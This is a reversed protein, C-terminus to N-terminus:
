ECVQKPRIAKLFWGLSNTETKVAWGDKRMMRAFENRNRDKGADDPNRYFWNGEIMDTATNGNISGGIEGRNAKIAERWDAATAM